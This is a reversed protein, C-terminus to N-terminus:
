QARPGAESSNSFILLSSAWSEVALASSHTQLQHTVTYEPLTVQDPAQATPGLARCIPGSLVPEPNPRRPGGPFTKDQVDQASRAPPVAENLAPALVIGPGVRRSGSWPGM